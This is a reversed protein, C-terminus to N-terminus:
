CVGKEKFNDRGKGRKRGRKWTNRGGGMGVGDSKEERKEGEERM